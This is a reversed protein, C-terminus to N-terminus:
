IMLETSDQVWKQDCVKSLFLIVFLRVNAQLLELLLLPKRGFRKKGVGFDIHLITLTLSQPIMQASLNHDNHCHYGM